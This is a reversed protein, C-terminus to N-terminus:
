RARPEDKGGRYIAAKVANYGKALSPNEAIKTRVPALTALMVAAYCASKRRGLYYRTIVRHELESRKRNERTESFGGGEYSSVIVPLHVAEAGREYICYLFHEYDGRVRFDTDYGREWFLSADYFCVQHCPVNRYCAFDNLKPASCVRSRQKENYQDGYFLFPRARLRTDREEEAKEILAATRSLVRSDYLSDGCNLFLVYDGNIHVLAQNMGDYIGKDPSRFIHVRSDSVSQGPWAVSLSGDAEEKLSGDTSGGDKLIVEFNGYEQRLVSQLTKMLKQGPNLSVIVISFFTHAM